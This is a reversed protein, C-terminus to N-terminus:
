GADTVARALEVADADNDSGGTVFLRFPTDAGTVLVEGTQPSGKFAEAGIGDVAEDEHYELGIDSGVFLVWGNRFSESDDTADFTCQLLRDSVETVETTGVTWGLSEVAAITPACPDDPLSIAATSGGDDGGGGDDGAPAQTTASGSGGDDGSCAM